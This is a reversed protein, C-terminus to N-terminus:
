NEQKLYYKRVKEPNKTYFTTYGCNVCSVPITKTSSVLGTRLYVQYREAGQAVVRQGGCEPCPRNAAREIAATMDYM